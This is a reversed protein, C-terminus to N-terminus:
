SLRMEELYSTFLKKKVTKNTINAAAKRFAFFRGIYKNERDTHHPSVTYFAITDEGKSIVCTITPKVATKAVGKSFFNVIKEGYEFHVKHGDVLNSM